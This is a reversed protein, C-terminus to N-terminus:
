NGCLRRATAIARLNITGLTRSGTLYQTQTFLIKYHILISILANWVSRKDILALVLLVGPDNLTDTSIFPTARM